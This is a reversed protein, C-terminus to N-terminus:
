NVTSSCEFRDICSFFTLFLFSRSGGFQNGSPVNMRVKALDIPHIIVSAFTAAAGGCVFPELAKVMAGNSKEPM